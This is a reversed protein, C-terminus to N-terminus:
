AAVAGFAKQMSWDKYSKAFDRALVPRAYLFGQCVRCGLFRLAAHQELTEVGEAVVALNMSKAMAITTGAISGKASEMDLDAVFARDIKLTDIPLKGLYSLSSYGTGFDDIAVRFGAAKLIGLERSTVEFSEMMGSETIEFEIDAPGLKEEALRKMLTEAFNRTHVDCLSLNVAVPLVTAGHVARERAWAGVEGIIKDRLLRSLGSSEAIPIFKGPSISAGDLSWRALAEAGVFEGTEIDVKPQLAITLDSAGGIARVLAPHLSAREALEKRARESCHHIGGRVTRQAVCLGAMAENILSDVEAGAPVDVVSMTPSVALCLEDVLVVEPVSAHVQEASCVSRRYLVGITDDAVRAALVVGEGLATLSQHVQLLYRQGVEQSYASVVFGFEPLRVMALAHGEGPERMLKQLARSLANENPIRLGSDCHALEDLREVLEINDFIVAVNASFVRLLAVDADTTPTNIDVFVFLQSGQKSRFAMALHSGPEVEEGSEQLRIFVEKVRPDALESLRSGGVSTLAGASSIVTMETASNSWPANRVGVCVVGNVPIKLLAALQRLIGQSFLSVSSENFLNAIGHVIQELGARIEEITAIQSYARIATTLACILRVNTLETKTRYDNIDYQQLVALEPAYGPQGTRLIVRLSSLGESRIRRVLELGADPSEMVVDILAVATDTHQRLLALGEEASYAHHLELPKGLILENKICFETANHVDEDDDIIVVKWRTTGAVQADGALEDDEVLEFDDEDLAINQHFTNPQQAASM